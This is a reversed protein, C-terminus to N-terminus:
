WVVVNDWNIEEEKKKNEILFWNQFDRTEPSRNSVLVRTIQNANTLVFDM